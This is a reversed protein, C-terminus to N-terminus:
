RTVAQVVEVGGEIARIVDDPDSVSYLELDYVGDSFSMAGTGTAGISIDIKGTTGGSELVIGGNLSTLELKFAVDNINERIQMRAEYSSIDVAVRDVQWITSKSFSAGKEIRLNLKEASM